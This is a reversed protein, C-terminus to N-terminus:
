AASAASAPLAMLAAGWLRGTRTSFTRVAGVGPVGRNAVLMRFVLVGGRRSERWLLRGFYMHRPMGMLVAVEAGLDRENGPSGAEYSVLLTSGLPVGLVVSEGTMTATIAPNAVIREELTMAAPVCCRPRTPLPATCVM